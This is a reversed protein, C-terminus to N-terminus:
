AGPRTGHGAPWQTASEIHTTEDTLEVARDILDAAVLPSTVVALLICNAAHRRARAIRDAAAEDLRMAPRTVASAKNVKEGTIYDNMM